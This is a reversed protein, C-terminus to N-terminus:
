IQARELRLRLRPPSPRFDRPQSRRIRARKFRCSTRSGQTARFTWQRCLFQGLHRGFGSAEGAVCAARAPCVSHRPTHCFCWLRKKKSNSRAAALFAEAAPHLALTVGNAASRPDVMAGAASGFRMYDVETFILKMLADIEASSVGAMTVLQATVVVTAVPRTQQAYTRAPITVPIYASSGVTLLAIADSDLPLFRVSHERAFVRLDPAAATATAIVADIEGKELGELAAELAVPEPPAALAAVAVRHARLVDVAETLAAPGPAGAPVARRRAWPHGSAVVAVIEGCGLEIADLGDLEAPLVGLQSEPVSWIGWTPEEQSWNRRGDPEFEAAYENWAARNRAVHEPLETM